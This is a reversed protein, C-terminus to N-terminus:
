SMLWLDSSYNLSATDVNVDKDVMMMAVTGVLATLPVASDDLGLNLSIVPLLWPRRRISLAQYTYSVVVAGLPCM